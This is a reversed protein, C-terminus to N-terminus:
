KSKDTERQDGNDTKGGSCGGGCKGGCQRAYPCGVCKAGRKKLGILYCVIGVVIAVLILAVIVNEM